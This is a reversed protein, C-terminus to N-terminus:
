ARRPKVVVDLGSGIPRSVLTLDLALESALGRLGEVVVGPRTLNCVVVRSVSRGAATLIAATVETCERELTRRAQSSSASRDDQTGNLPPLELPASARLLSGLDRPAAPAAGDDIGM